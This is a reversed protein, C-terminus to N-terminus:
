GFQRLGQVTQRKNTPIHNPMAQTFGNVIDGVPFLEIMDYDIIVQFQRDCREVVDHDVVPVVRFRGIGIQAPFDIGQKGPIAALGAVESLRSLHGRGNDRSPSM